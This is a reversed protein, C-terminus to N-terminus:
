GGNGAKTESARAAEEELVVDLGVELKRRIRALEKEEPGFSLARKWQFRAELRRGVKWLIDGLHDNLIPDSPVLEVAREMPAVAEGYRGLRYLVWALSDTIYGDEPRQEVARRIMTEAEGMSRGLEVLSYGLYNLVLPQGPELQLARRFDAEAREWRGAREYCIGRQYFLIWHQSRVEPLLAIARGYIEAAEGFRQEQRLADALAATPGIEQPYARVLEQLAGIGEETRGADLLASARATEARLFQPAERPIASLAAIALETQGQEQMLDAMLLWGEAHDPALHLALRGLLVAFDRNESSGLVLAVTYFAEAVGATADPVMTFGIAEGAAIRARLDALVPDRLGRTLALDLIELARAQRGTAAFIEARAQLSRRDGALFDADAAELIRAAGELDGAVAHALGKHYSGFVQMTPNQALADFAADAAARDDVSACWG